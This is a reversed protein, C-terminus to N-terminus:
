RGLLKDMMVSMSGLCYAAAPFFVYLAKSPDRVVYTVCCAGAAAFFALVFVRENAPALLAIICVAILYRHERLFKM